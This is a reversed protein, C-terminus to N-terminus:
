KDTAFDPTVLVVTWDSITVTANVCLQDDTADINEEGFPIYMRYVSGKALKLSASDNLKVIKVTKAPNNVFMHHSAANLALVMPATALDLTGEAMNWSWAQGNALEIADVEDKGCGDVNACAEGVLVDTSTFNKYYEKGNLPMTFKVLTLEDLGVTAINEEGNDDVDTNLEGLNECSVGVLEFRTFQPKIDLTADYYYYTTMVGNVEDEYCKNSKTLDDEAYLFINQVDEKLAATENVANAQIAALTQGELTTGALGKTDRIVAVRTVTEPVRHFTYTGEGNAVEGPVYEDTNTTVHIDDDAEGILPLAKLVQGAQNAFLIKLKTVDAVLTETEGNTGQTGVQDTTGNEGGQASPSLTEGTVTARTGSIKSNQITVTVSKQKSTLVTDADDKSCSVITALAMAAIFLKKM